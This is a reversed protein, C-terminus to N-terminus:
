RITRALQRAAANLKDDSSSFQADDRGHLGRLMEAFSALHISDLGRLAYREALDGAELCLTPSAPIVLYNLWDAEFDQKATRFAPATLTGDRRRRALAARTEPYALNSTVTVAANQVLERVQDSAPEEVYLKMLNSTDLYVTV